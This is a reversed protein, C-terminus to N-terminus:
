MPVYKKLESRSIRWIKLAFRVPAPLSNRTFQQYVVKKAGFSSYFRALGPNNSGEFDLTVPKGANEKIFADILWPM